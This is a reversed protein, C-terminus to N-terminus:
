KMVGANVIWRYGIENGKSRGRQMGSNLNKKYISLDQLKDLIGSVNLFSQSFYNRMFIDFARQFSGEAATGGPTEVKVPNKTFVQQGNDDIFSLVEARKPRIVVPIGEEMIRAKDYFPTTSGAKISTSQRFTSRISLGLGTVAYDIDFLRADPSGVRYWEYVHQLMEPDVRAMSDIFEKMAVITSAGLNDLFIKKGAKVGDLFGLSYELINDMDKQFKRHDIQMRM